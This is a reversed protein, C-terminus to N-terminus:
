EPKWEPYRGFEIDPFKHSAKESEDVVEIGFQLAGPGWIDKHAIVGGEPPTGLDGQKYFFPVQYVEDGNELERLFRMKKHFDDNENQKLIVKRIREKGRRVIAIVDFKNDGVHRKAPSYGAMIVQPAERATNDYTIPAKSNTRAYQEPFNGVMLDPYTHSMNNYQDRAIINYQDPKSGWATSLTGDSMSGKKYTYTVKYIEDGNPLVGAQRMEEWLPGETSKFAVIHIAEEGPRVLAVIDFQDDERDLKTPTVGAALIQPGVRATQNYPGIIDITQETSATAEEDDGVTLIITHTNENLKLETQKGYLTKVGDITWEYGSINGDQDYAESADLKVTVPLNGFLIRHTFTAVPLCNVHIFKRAKTTAGLRDKVTLLVEYNGCHEFHISALGNPKAQIVPCKDRDESSCSVLWNYELEKEETAQNAQFYVTLPADGFSPEVTFEAEPPCNVTIEQTTKDTEGQNDMVTLTMQYEGCEEFTFTPNLESSLQGDSREMQYATIEGDYDKSASADFTVYAPPAKSTKPEASLQAIPPCNEIMVRKSTTGVEGAEDIVSLQLTYMGSQPFAQSPNSEQSFPTCDDTQEGNCVLWDYQQIEGDIDSAANSFKVISAQFVGDKVETPCVAAEISFGFDATPGTNTVSFSQTSSQSYGEDDTVTLTISHEGWQTFRLTTEEGSATQGDSTAWDYQLPGGDPDHAASANVQVTNQSSLPVISFQAIPEQNEANIEIETASNTAGMNDTVTLGVRYTDPMKFTLSATKGSATQGDSAQWDFQKITGDPDFSASADLKVQLPANGSEPDATFHAEPQRNRLSVTKAISDTAGTDDTVTLTITHTDANNFTLSAVEGSATQGDSAKWEYKVITGDRDVDVSDRADLTVTVPAFNSDTKLNMKAIPKNGITIQKEAQGQAGHTDTVTLTISYEGSQEYRFSATEGDTTQGDSSAWHYSTIQGDCAKTSASADLDLTLPPEPSSEPNLRLEAVPPCEGLKMSKSDSATEGENNTATITITYTNGPPAAFAYSNGNDYPGQEIGELPELRWDFSTINGYSEDVNCKVVWLEAPENYTNECKLVVEPPAAWSVLPMLTAAILSRRMRNKVNM